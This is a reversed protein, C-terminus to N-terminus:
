SHGRCPPHPNRLLRQLGWTDRILIGCPYPLTRSKYATASCLGDSHDKPSLSIAEHCTTNSDVWVHSRHRALRESPIPYTPPGDTVLADYSPHLLLLTVYLFRVDSLLHSPGISILLPAISGILGIKQPSLLPGMVCHEHSM